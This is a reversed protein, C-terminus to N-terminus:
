WYLAGFIGMFLPLTIISVLSSLLIGAAVMKQKTENPPLVLAILLASPMACQM